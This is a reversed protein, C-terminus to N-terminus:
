LNEEEIIKLRDDINLIGNSFSNKLHNLKNEVEIVKEAIKDLDNKFESRLSPKHENISEETIHYVHELTPMTNLSSILNSLLNELTSLRILIESKHKRQEQRSIEVVVLDILILILIVELVNYGLIQIILFIVTLASLFWFLKRLPM